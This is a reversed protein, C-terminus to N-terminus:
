QTRASLVVAHLPNTEYTWGVLPEDLWTEARQIRRAEEHTNSHIISASLPLRNDKILSLPTLLNRM